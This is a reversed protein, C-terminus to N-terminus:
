ALGLSTLLDRLVRTIITETMANGIARGLQPKTLVTKDIVGPRMGQARLLEDLSTWRARNTLWHGGNSGRTATVCPLKNPMWHVKTANADVACAIKYPDFGLERIRQLAAIVQKKAHATEPLSTPIEKKTKKDLISNLDLPKHGKPFKFDYKAHKKSQGIIYVRERNQFSCM